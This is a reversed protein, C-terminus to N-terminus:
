VPETNEHQIYVAECLILMLHLGEMIILWVFLLGRWLCMQVSFLGSISQLWLIVVHRRRGSFIFSLHEKELSSELEGRNRRDELYFTSLYGTM